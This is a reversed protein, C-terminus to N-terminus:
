ARGIVEIAGNFVAAVATPWRADTTLLRDARLTVATAIVLADPLRITCVARLAAAERAVPEDIAVIEVGLARILGDVSAVAEGGRRTPGVLMEALASAPLALQAREEEATRLAQSAPIHHGDGQDLVGILVGADLVTLGM